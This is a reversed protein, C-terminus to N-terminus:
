SPPRPAGSVSRTPATVTGTARSRSTPRSATASRRCRTRRDQPCASRGTAPARASSASTSSATVTRRRSRVTGPPAWRSRRPAATDIVKVINATPEGAVFHLYRGASESLHVIEHSENVVVVTTWVARALASPTRWLSSGAADSGRFGGSGSGRWRREATARGDTSALCSTIASNESIGRLSRHVKGTRGRRPVACLCVNSRM